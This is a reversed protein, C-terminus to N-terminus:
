CATGNLIDTIDKYKDSDFSSAVWQTHSGLETEKSADTYIHIDVWYNRCKFGGLPDSMVVLSEDFPAALQMLIATGPQEPNELYVFLVAGEPLDQLLEFTFFYSMKLPENEGPITLNFGAGTTQLYDSAVNKPFGSTKNATPPAYEVVLPSIPTPTFTITPVPTNTPKPTVTPILTATQTPAATETQARAADATASVQEASPGCGAILLGIVILYMAKM